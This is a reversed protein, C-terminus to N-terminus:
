NLLIHKLVTCHFGGLASSLFYFFLSLFIMNASQLIQDQLEGWTPQTQYLIVVLPNGGGGFLLLLAGVFSQTLNWRVPSVTTIAKLIQSFVPKLTSISKRFFNSLSLDVNKPFYLFTVFHFSALLTTFEGLLYFNYNFDLLNLKYYKLILEDM